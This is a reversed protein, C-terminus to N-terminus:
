AASEKHHRPEQRVLGYVYGHQDMHLAVGHEEGIAIIADLSMRGAKMGTLENSHRGITEAIRRQLGLKQRHHVAGSLRYGLANLLVHAYRQRLTLRQWNGRTLLDDDIGQVGRTTATLYNPNEDPM